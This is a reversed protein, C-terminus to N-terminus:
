PLDRGAWVVRGHVPLGALATGSVTAAPYAENDCQLRVSGDPQPAIRRVLPEGGLDLLFVGAGTPREARTDVLVLDHGIRSVAVWDATGPYPPRDEAAQRLRGSRLAGKGPLVPRSGTRTPGRGPLIKRWGAATPGSPGKSGGRGPGEAGSFIPM